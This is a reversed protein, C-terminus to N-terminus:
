AQKEAEFISRIPVDVVDDDINDDLKVCSPSTNSSLMTLRLSDREYAYVLLRSLLKGVASEWM